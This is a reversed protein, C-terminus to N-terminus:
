SLAQETVDSSKRQDRSDKEEQSGVLIDQYRRLGTGAPVLHGVIVNEKLGHLDDTKATIAAESLVKTTEQFSAASLWSKTGLSARTIGQLVPKCIAPRAAEATVLDLDNRRLFSNEDRLRRRSIIQGPKLKTSGGADTVYMKDFIWDNEEQFDNRDVIEKELFITNGSDVIEVKRMMQRVIVEIHKDNIPVGQMRYVEQIENVIYAQVASPGKISLIDKPAIAGDSLMEGSMVYDGDHVLIHKNLSVMYRPEDSGDPAQIFVERNGRKIGGLRVVGEIATVVAPNSPNRAEFLETVRPLGGTIDATGGSARPIKVLIQGAKIEEADEVILHAGVPLNYSRLEEGDNNVINVTPNVSRDRSDIIVKEKYGTQEDIDELFTHGERVDVLAVKGDFESVIVSNFPDWKCIMTGKEIDMDGPVFLEAGYPIKNSFLIRSQDDTIKVKGTRGVVIKKVGDDTDLDVARVNELELKGSFKAVLQSSAAIRQATGGVHFTRLTLQTGPEGISQAAMVGVAEGVQVLRGNALNRGYCKACVGTKTECTLVSRIVIEEIPSEEIIKAREEDILEGAPVIMDGTIPHVLDDILARGLVRNSLPEIIEENEKLASITIGRLTGCDHETIIVDQAVDVLRRTLYGADATKLATDALGKRAGHTSIFYELVSLGEKFNALIPNEIIEGASGKLTKQPKAMLGRMGGLQRIQEKSGRAGSHMMMYINNFGDKDNELQNLLAKTLSSNTRTWIDIVQNYRENETIIGMNYNGLVVEIESEAEKILTEKEEPILVEKLSFSLGGKFAEQFGLEKLEDLFKVTKVLGARRYIDAIVQRTTKKSLLVNVFPVEEPVIKNLLVRGVTTELFEIEPQGSEANVIVQNTEFDRKLTRLKIKAHKAVQGENFAIEVEEVSGFTMGEGKVNPREKTLYYAGLIMDQSPLTIPNGNAPHLINHSSLMLVLAELCAENSLPVHVAMQDGDFDANFGTCVLPHLQIAKGEVLRPLFAQIGLRHLTPARNLMVPHGKLINELIDWIVPDRRDVLKKASKVTKVIGREILKRIIFPKFLEAAMGKPLGCEHLKLQPGVVIVSRGSYDVRKGLLNQRFRGQKGKLMDSLSKLARNSDSRVANVKRTNDFLSDVAEQLMRKENRLIVEPAKIEILRKLRNNRIIVRRYLDNLDSTAFRGGELPVLPRLEPPIVPVIRVIMWEPRNEIRRNASRFAEVVKLRKLADNKRQQSTETAAKQRLSYSLSDLDITSLLAELADAGMKAVFKQPDEDPLMQNDKPLTELINLYEEETLFDMRAVNEEELIGPQIVVYREYYIIQDLKKSTLGLLYGIKSPLTRFYWIHAVPVVLQIHGMRERRVKKETVEVGCRDCIIGKYRIRKYKGCHCEYDKVPGFIRECFLGDKEPKYTRYNITEPKLVEGHSRNLITEPSALSITIRKFDSNIKTNKAVPM